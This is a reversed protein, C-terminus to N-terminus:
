GAIRRHRKARCRTLDREEDYTASFHRTLVTRVIAEDRNPRIEWVRRFAAEPMAIGTQDIRFSKSKRHSSTDPEGMNDITLQATSVTVAPGPEEDEKVAVAEIPAWGLLSEGKM